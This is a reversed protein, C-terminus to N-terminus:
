EIDLTNNNTEIANREGAVMVNRLSKNGKNSSFRIILDPGQTVENRHVNIRSMDFSADKHEVNMLFLEQIKDCHSFSNNTISVDGWKEYIYTPHVIESFSNSEIIITTGGKVNLGDTLHNGVVYLGAPSSACIAYESSEINNNEVIIDNGNPFVVIGRRSKIHNNRMTVSGRGVYTIAGYIKEGSASMENDEITINGIEDGRAVICGFTPTSSDKTLVCSLSNNDINIEAGNQILVSRVGGSCLINGSVVTGSASFGEYGRHGLTLCSVNESSSYITNNRILCNTSNVGVCSVDWYVGKVYNKELVGGDGCIFEISTGVSNECHNRAVTVDRSYVSKVFTVQRSICDVISCNRSQLFSVAPCGNNTFNDMYDIFRCNDVSCNKSRSFIIGFINTKAIHESSYKLPSRNFDFTLDKFLINSYKVKTEDFSDEPNHQTFVYIDAKETYFLVGDKIRGNTDNRKLISAEKDVGKITIDSRLKVGLSIYWTGSDIVITSHKNILKQLVVTIDDGPNAYKKIHVERRAGICAVTPISAALLVGFLFICLVRYIGKM